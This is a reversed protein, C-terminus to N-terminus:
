GLAHQLALYRTLTKHWSQDTYFVGYHIGRGHFSAQYLRQQREFAERYADRVLSTECRLTEPREMSEFLVPGDLGLDREMPDLVQLVLVRHKRAHFAKVTDLIGRADGLLDSVLVILSRRPIRSVVHRLVAGLDTEGGVRASELARDMLELHSFSQRPALFARPETDFTVLGTADGTGLILYAMAMTLRCALEWKPEGSAGFGMSGSADLLLYTRLSKEEQYEKIFFRDKRAYVKWDLRKLEDGPVYTRYQAFEQSFGHRVSSHRGTLHGEAMHRRVDFRVNKLRALTVSDLYRV